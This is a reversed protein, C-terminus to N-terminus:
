RYTDQSHKYTHKQKKIDFFTKFNPFIMEDNLEGGGEETKIIMNSPSAQQCPIVYLDLSNVHHPEGEPLPIWLKDVYTKEIRDDSLFM